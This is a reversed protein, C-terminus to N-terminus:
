ILKNKFNKEVKEADYNPEIALNELLANKRSNGAREFALYIIQQIDGSKLQDDLENKAWRHEKKFKSHLTIFKLWTNVVKSAFVKDRHAYTFEYIDTNDLKSVKLEETFQPESLYEAYQPNNNLEIAASNIIQPDIFGEIKIEYNIPKPSTSISKVYSEPTLITLSSSLSKGRLKIKGETRCKYPEKASLGLIFAVLITIQLTKNFINPM